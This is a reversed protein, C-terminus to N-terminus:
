YRRLIKVDRNSFVQVIRKLINVLGIAQSERPVSQLSQRGHRGRCTRSVVPRSRLQHANPLPTRYEKREQAAETVNSSTGQIPNSPLMQIEGSLGAAICAQRVMFAVQLVTDVGGVLQWPDKKGLCRPLGERFQDVDVSSQGDEENADSADGWLGGQKHDVQSRVRHSSTRQLLLLLGKIALVMAASIDVLLSIRPHTM